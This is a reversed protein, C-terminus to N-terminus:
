RAFLNTTKIIKDIDADELNPHIPISVIKKSVEDTIPLKQNQNYYKMKHIPFYHIGTEIFNESMKKMFTTRNKVQIWFLHYSCNKDFSIKEKSARNMYLDQAQEYIIENKKGKSALQGDKDFKKYAEFFDFDRAVRWKPYIYYGTYKTIAGRAFLKLKNNIVSKNYDM